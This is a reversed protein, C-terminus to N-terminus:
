QNCLLSWWWDDKIKLLMNWKDLTTYVKNGNNSWSSHTEYLEIAKKDPHTDNDWVSVITMAPKLSKIHSTYYNVTDSPDDFFSISWHHSALLFTTKIKEKNYKKLVFEKWSLFSTDWPLMIWVWKYEIKIVLSQDNADSFDSNKGNMTRIICEWFTDFVFPKKEIWKDRKLSMYTIYESSDTTTWPVWSDWIKTIWFKKNIKEIWRMHDADRHTNIFIDIKKNWIHKELYWLVNLENENTINCDCIINVNNPIQILTMNWQGVNIFHIKM